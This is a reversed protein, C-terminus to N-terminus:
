IRGTQANRPIMRDLPSKDIQVLPEQLTKRYNDEMLHRARAYNACGEKPTIDTGDKLIIYWSNNRSHLTGILSAIFTDGNNIHCTDLGGSDQIWFLDPKEM